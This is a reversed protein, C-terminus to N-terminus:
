RSVIGMGCPESPAYRIGHLTELTHVRTHAAAVPPRVSNRGARFAVGGEDATGASDGAGEGRWGQFPM